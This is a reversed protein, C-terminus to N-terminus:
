ADRPEQLNARDEAALAQGDALGRAYGKEEERQLAARHEAQMAYLKRDMDSDDARYRALEAEAKRLAMLLGREEGAKIQCGPTALPDAGFHDRAAGVTTFTEGCHFCTWGHLPGIYTATQPATM